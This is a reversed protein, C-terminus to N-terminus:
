RNQYDLLLEVLAAVQRDTLSIWNIESDEELSMQKLTVGRGDCDFLDVFVQHSDDGCSCKAEYVEGWTVSM